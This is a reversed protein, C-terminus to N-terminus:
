IMVKENRVFIRFESYYEPDEYNNDYEVYSFLSIKEGPETWHPSFGWKEIQNKGYYINTAMEGEFKKKKLENSVGQVINKINKRSFKGKYKMM